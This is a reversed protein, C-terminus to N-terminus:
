LRTCVSEWVKLIRNSVITHFLPSFGFSLGYFTWVKGAGQCYVTSVLVLKYLNAFCVRSTGIYWIIVFDVASVIWPKSNDLNTIFTVYIQFYMTVMLRILGTKRFFERLFCTKTSFRDVLKKIRLKSRLHVFGFWLGYATSSPRILETYKTSKM